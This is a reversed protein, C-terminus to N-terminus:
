DTNKKGDNCNEIEDPYLVPHENILLTKYEKNDSLICILLSKKNDHGDL